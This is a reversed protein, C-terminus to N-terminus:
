TSVTAGPAGAFRGDEAFSQVADWRRQAWEQVPLPSCLLMLYDYPSRMDNAMIFQYHMRFFNMRLRQYFEPSLMDRFRVQWITPNCREPGVVVGVGAVPDFDWFNLIDKRSQCDIWLVSPEIALRRIVARMWEAAPHLAAGPMISGLTLLVVRPGRRGVEPDLELARAVVAPAVAGGGSHGIVLIEDVENARAGAVLRGACAEIPVDFSTPEGRAFARLYPWHCNIQLVFWRKALRQLILFVAIAAGISIVAGNSAPLEGFHTSAFGALAGAAVSLVLWGLLMLQFHVVAAGFPWSARLIRFTAGSVLDDLAWLLSRPIQRWLPEAMQARIFHEQRLFEYRTAVRWNPGSAEIDWHAQLESDLKLPGVKVDIPWIKLFRTRTRQFIRYYGEAGQPDYGEVYFV